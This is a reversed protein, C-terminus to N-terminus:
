VNVQMRSRSLKDAVNPLYPIDVDLLSLGPMFGLHVTPQKVCVESRDSICVVCPTKPPKDVASM